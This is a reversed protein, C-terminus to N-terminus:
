DHRREELQKKCYACILSGKVFDSACYDSDIIFAEGNDISDQDLCEEGCKKCSFYWSMKLLEQIPVKKSEAYKDFDPARNARLEQYEWGDFIDDYLAQAKAKGSTEAWVIISGAESMNDRVIYAKLKEKEM